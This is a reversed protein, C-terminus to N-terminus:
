QMHALRPTLSGSCVTSPLLYGDIEGCADDKYSEHCGARKLGVHASYSFLPKSQFRSLPDLKTIWVREARVRQTTPSKVKLGLRRWPRRGQEHQM